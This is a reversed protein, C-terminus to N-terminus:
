MYPQVHDGVDLFNDPVPVVEGSISFIINNSAICIRLLINTGPGVNINVSFASSDLQLYCRLQEHRM